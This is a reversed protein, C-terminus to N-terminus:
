ERQIASLFLLTLNVCKLAFTIQGVDTLQWNNGRYKAILKLLCFALSKVLGVMFLYKCENPANSKNKFFLLVEVAACNCVMGSKSKSRHGSWLENRIYFICFFFRNIFYLTQTRQCSRTKFDQDWFCRIIKNIQPHAFARVSM